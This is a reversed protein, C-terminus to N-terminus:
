AANVRDPAADAGVTPCAAGIGRAARALLVALADTRQYLADAVEAVQENSRTAHM